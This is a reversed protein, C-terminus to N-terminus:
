STQRSVSNRRKLAESILRKHEESKKKGALAKSTRLRSELSRKPRKMRGPVWGEPPEEGQKLYVEASRDPTTMWRRGYSQSECGKKAFPNKGPTLLRRRNTESIRRLGEKSKHGGGYNPNEEGSASFNFKTSTQRSRNAYRKKRHVDKVNHIRIEELLAEERSNFVILVRKRKPRFTKDSFSGMYKDKKPEVSSTRVGYYYRGDEGYLLYTYHFM